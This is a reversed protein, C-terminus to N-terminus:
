ARAGRDVGREALAARGAGRRDVPARRRGRRAAGVDVATLPQRLRVGSAEAIHGVPDPAAM